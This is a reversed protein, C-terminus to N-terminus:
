TQMMDPSKTSASSNPSLPVYIQKLEHIMKQQLSQTSYWKIFSLQPFTTAFMQNLLSGKKSFDQIVTICQLKNHDAHYFVSMNLKIRHFIQYQKPRLQNIYWKSIQNTTDVAIFHFISKNGWIWSITSIAQLKRQRTRVNTITSHPNLKSNRM